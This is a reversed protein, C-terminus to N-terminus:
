LTAVGGPQHALQAHFEVSHRVNAEQDGAIVRRLIRRQTRDFEPRAHQVERNEWM